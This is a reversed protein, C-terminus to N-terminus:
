SEFFDNWFEDNFDLGAKTASLSLISSSANPSPNSRVRPATPTIRAIRAIRAHATLQELEDDATFENFICIKNMWLSWVRVELGLDILIRRIETTVNIGKMREFGSQRLDKNISNPELNLFKGLSQSRIWLGGSDSKIVGLYRASGQITASAVVVDRLRAVFPIKNHAGSIREKLRNLEPIQIQAQSQTQEPTHQVQM